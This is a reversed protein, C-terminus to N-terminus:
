MYSFTIFIQMAYAITRCLCIVKTGPMISSDPPNMLPLDERSPYSKKHLCTFNYSNQLVMCLSNNHLTTIGTKWEAARELHYQWNVTPFHSYIFFIDTYTYTCIRTGTIEQPETFIIFSPLDARIYVLAHKISPLPPPYLSPPPLLPAPPSLFLSSLIPKIYLNIRM